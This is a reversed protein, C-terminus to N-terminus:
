LLATIIFIVVPVVAATAVLAAMIAIVALASWIMAKSQDIKVREAPRGDFEELEAEVFSTSGAVLDVELDTPREDPARRVTM